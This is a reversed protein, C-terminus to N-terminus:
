EEAAPDDSPEGDERPQDPLVTPDAADEYRADDRELAYIAPGAIVIVLLGPVPVSPVAAYTATAVLTTAGVVAAWRRPPQIDNRAADRYVAAALAVAVLAGGAVVSWSVM